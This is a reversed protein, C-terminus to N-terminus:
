MATHGCEFIAELDNLLNPISAEATDGNCPYPCGPSVNGSSASHYPVALSATVARDWQGRYTAILVMFFVNSEKPGHKSRRSTM